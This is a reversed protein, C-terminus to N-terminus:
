HNKKVADKFEQKEWLSKATYSYKGLLIQKIAKRDIDDKPYRKVCQGSNHKLLAKLVISFCM